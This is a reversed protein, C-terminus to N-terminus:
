MLGGTVLALVVQSQMNQLLQIETKPVTTYIIEPTLEVDSFVLFNGETINDEEVLILTPNANIVTLRENIDSYQIKTLM